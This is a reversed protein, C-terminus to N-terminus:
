RKRQRQGFLKIWLAFGRQQLRYEGRTSPNKLIIKRSTLAQLANSLTQETGTFSEKIEKKSIWSNMKDAMISLVQRYEDSKIQDHYSSEYYKSGIADLAGGKDFAANLVDDDSIEGDTNYEFASYGFQQIFHPYGESLESILSIASSSINTQELNIKNGEEIGKEIVYRRDNSELEKIKLETFIRLSSEHSNSLKELVEPLGAAIFMINSCNHQQILESVVKFFYGIQLENNSKDVEDIFFIIGDKAEETKEPNTLRNCTQTLSYAFEDLVLDPEDISENQEIGSDFIRIRQVFSWTENVFKKIAEIKGLERKINKDILKILTILNTRESIVANITIFNFKDYSPNTIEGNALAKIYSLLSSKGIGREGTILFNVPHKNKTQFLGKELTEIEKLRGAFMGIAVINNPKFPNIKPM